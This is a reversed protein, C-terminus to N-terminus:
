RALRAVRDGARIGGILSRAIAIAVRRITDADSDAFEPGTVELNVLSLPRAHRTARALEVDLKQNLGNVSFIGTEADYVEQVRLRAERDVLNRQLLSVLVWV